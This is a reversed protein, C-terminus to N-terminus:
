HGFGHFLVEDVDYGAGAVAGQVGAHGAVEDAAGVLVAVAKDGAEGSFMGDVAQYIVLDEAAGGVGDGAFFLDFLPVALPLELEDFLVVWGPLVKVM